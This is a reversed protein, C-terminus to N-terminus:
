STRNRMVNEHLGVETKKATRSPKPAADENACITTPPEGIGAELSMMSLATLELSCVVKTAATFAAPRTSVSLLAPGKVTKAGVFAAKAAKGAKAKEEM